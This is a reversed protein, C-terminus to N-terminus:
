LVSRAMTLKEPEDAPTRLTLLKDQLRTEQADLRQLIRIRTTEATPEPSVERIATGIRGTSADDRREFDEPMSTPTLEVSDSPLSMADDRNFTPGIAATMEVEGGSLRIEGESCDVRNNPDVAWSPNEQLNHLPRMVPFTRLKWCDAIQCRFRPKVMPFFHTSSTTRQQQRSIWEWSTSTQAILRALNSPSSRSRHFSTTGNEHHMELVLDAVDDRGIARAFYAVAEPRTTQTLGRRRFRGGFLTCRSRSPCLQASMDLARLILVSTLSSLTSITIRGTRPDGPKKFHEVLVYGHEERVWHRWSAHFRWIVSISASITNQISQSTSFHSRRVRRM